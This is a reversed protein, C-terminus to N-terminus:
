YRVVLHLEDARADSILELVADMSQQVVQAHRRPHSLSNASHISARSLCPNTRCGGLSTPLLSVGAFARELWVLM